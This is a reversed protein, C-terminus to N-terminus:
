EEFSISNREGDIEVPNDEIDAGPGTRHNRMVCHLVADGSDDCEFGIGRHTSTSLFFGVIEVDWDVPNVPDTLREGKVIIGDVCNNATEDKTGDLMWPLDDVFGSADQASVSLKANELM